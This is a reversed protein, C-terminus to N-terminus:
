KNFEKRIKSIIFEGDVDTLERFWESRFFRECEAIIDDPRKNDYSGGGLANRYDNVAQMIIANALLEYNTLNTM